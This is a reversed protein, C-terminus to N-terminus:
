FMAPFQLNYDTLCSMFTWQSFLIFYSKTATNFFFLTKLFLGKLFYFHTRAWLLCSLLILLNSLLGQQYQLDLKTGAGAQTTHQALHGTRGRRAESHLFHTKRLLLLASSTYCCLTCLSAPLYSITNTKLTVCPSSRHSVSSSCQSNNQHLWSWTGASVHHIIPIQLAMRPVWHGARTEVPGLMGTTCM